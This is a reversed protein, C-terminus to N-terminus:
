PFFLASFHRLRLGAEESPKKRLFVPAWFWFITSWRTSLCCFMLISLGCAMVEVLLITRPMGTTNQRSCFDPRHFLSRKELTLVKMARFFTTKHKQKNWFFLFTEQPRIQSSLCSAGTHKIRYWRVAFFRRKRGLKSQEQWCGSKTKGPICMINTRNQARDDLICFCPLSSRVFFAGAGKPTPDWKEINWRPCRM